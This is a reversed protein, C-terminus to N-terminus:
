YFSLQPLLREAEKYNAKEKVRESMDLSNRLEILYHPMKATYKAPSQAKSYINV